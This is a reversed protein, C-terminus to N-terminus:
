HLAAAIEEIVLKETEVLSQARLSKLAADTAYQGLAWAAAARILPETDTLARQLVVEGAAPRTNGLSIAANRLLGRRKSRWLPTGRFRQRFAENDWDFLELLDIPNSGARPSFSPETAEPSFRNWPCVEQCIDCGFLWDNMNPRLERAPMGKQEITLYSICRSADLLHPGVFADTPCADLCATCSGCHDTGLPEDPVLEADTVLAALFFYSGRERSILLTNKGVWGLGALQAFDREMLPATDVVGRTKAEPLVNRLDDALAHLKPRILDHYDVDGWAFRSVRGQGATPELPADTRYDLTLVVVSKAGDLLRDPHEYADRRGDLYAMEGAYGNALWEDLRAIGRPTVAPAVGASSFGLTKARNKVRDTLQQPTM